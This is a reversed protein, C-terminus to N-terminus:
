LLWQAGPKLPLTDGNNGSQGIEGAAPGRQGCAFAFTESGNIPARLTTLKWEAHPLSTETRATRNAELLLADDNVVRIATLYETVSSSTIRMWADALGGRVPAAVEPPLLDLPDESMVPLSSNDGGTAKADFKWKTIESGGVADLHHIVGSVSWAGSPSFTRGSRHEMERRCEILVAKTEDGWWATGAQYYGGDARKRVDLSGCSACLPKSGIVGDAVLRSRIVAPLKKFGAISAKQYDISAPGRNSVEDGRAAELDGGGTTTSGM